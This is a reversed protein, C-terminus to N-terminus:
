AAVQEDFEYLEPYIVGLMDSHGSHCLMRDVLDLSVNQVERHVFKWIIRTHVGFRVGIEEQDMRPILTDLYRAFPELPLLRNEDEPTAPQRPKPRVARPPQRSSLKRKQLDTLKGVRTGPHIRLRTLLKSARAPGWRHQSAVVRSVTCSQLSPHNFADALDLTGAKVERFANARALRVTNAAALANLRQQHEPSHPV